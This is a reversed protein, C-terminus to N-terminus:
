GRDIIVSILVYLIYTYLSGVVPVSAVTINIESIHKIHKLRTRRLIPTNINYKDNLNYVDFSHEVYYHLIIIYIYRGIYLVGTVFVFFSSNNGM